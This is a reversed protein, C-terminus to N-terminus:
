KGKWLEFFRQKLRHAKEFVEPYRDKLRVMVRHFLPIEPALISVGVIIFLIGQLIPLFCGIIGLVIFFWGFVHRLVRKMTQKM